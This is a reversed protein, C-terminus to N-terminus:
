IWRSRERWELILPYLLLLAYPVYLWIGLGVGNLAPYFSFDNAKGLIIVVSVAALAAIVCLSVIDHGGMRYKSFTTRKKAGYGRARMSDAATISDEMSWSMLIGAMRVSNAIKRKRTDGHHSNYLAAQANRIQYMKYSTQPIWKLIMSAVLASTPALKGFLYLFRDNTMLAQYCRFWVIVCLLMGGSCMGFLLAELTFPTNGIYFLVTSGKHNFLPNAVAIVAFAILMFKLSSFYKRAGSLYISYVSGVAFSLLAFFPQMTLMSCVIASCIYTFIVVPHYIFFIHKMRMNDFRRAWIRDPM